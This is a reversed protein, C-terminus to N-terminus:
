QKQSLLHPLTIRSYSKDQTEQKQNLLVSLNQSSHMCACPVEKPDYNLQNLSIHHVNTVQM